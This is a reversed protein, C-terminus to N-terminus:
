RRVRAIARDLQARQSESLDARLSELVGLAADLSRKRLQMALREADRIEQRSRLSSRLLAETRARLSADQEGRALVYPSVLWLLDQMMGDARGESGLREYCDVMEVFYGARQLAGMAALAAEPTFAEAKDNMLAIALRSADEDRGLLVLDSIAGAFEEDQLRQKLRDDLDVLTDIALEADIRQGATGVTILPDGLVAIKWLQFEPHRVAAAFSVGGALRKAVDPTPVFANLFPEDVSGVYAYVGRELLRGGVTNRNTPRYLSYSHVLHLLAPVRLMPVDGSYGEESQGGELDFRWPSGKSNMLMLLSSGPGGEGDGIPRVLRLYWDDITNRPLDHSEVRMDKDELEQAAQSGDYFSWPRGAPYGDWVFAQDIELFLACMARYVTQSENGILQGCYAWREGIGNSGHRGIRDSTAFRDNKGPGTQITTGTNMALTIADIEDGMQNWSSGTSRALLIAQNEIQTALEVDLKEHPRAPRRMYGIAQFRGASLAAAGAWAQESPDTLVIGPSVSGQERLSRLVPRWDSQQENLAKGIARDIAESRGDADDPFAWGGDDKLSLVHEPKYARVFRANNERSEVSGDDWLIPFRAMGEWQSLAYLYSEADDVLVVFPLTKQAQRLLGAKQGARILPDSENIKTFLAPLSGSIQKGSDQQAGQPTPIVPPPDEQAGCVCKSFLVFGLGVTRISRRM